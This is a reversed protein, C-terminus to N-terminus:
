PHSVSGNIWGGMYLNMHNQRLVGLGQPHQLDWKDYVWGVFMDAFVESQTNDWGFQWNDWGGYFGYTFVGSEDIHDGAADRLFDPTLSFEPQSGTAANFAHGLEHVVLRPHDLLYNPSGVVDYITIHNYAHTYGAYGPEESSRTFTFTTGHVGKFAESGSCQCGSAEALREGAGIVGNLVTQMEDSNWAKGGNEFHLGYLQSGTFDADGAYLAKEMAHGTPDTYRMPNNNVYAYRDLGQVGGPVISDAQAFRGLAPDYWRANYYM